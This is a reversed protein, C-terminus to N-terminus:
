NFRMQHYLDLGFMRLSSGEMHPAIMVDDDLHGFASDSYSPFSNALPPPPPPPLVGNEVPVGGNADDVLRTAATAAADSDSDKGTLEQVLARFNSPCTKVEIPSSIYVVKFGKKTTSNRRRTSAHKRRLADM